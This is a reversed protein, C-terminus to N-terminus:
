EIAPNGIPGIHYRHCHTCGNDTQGERHCSACNLKTIPAFNSVAVSSDHGAFTQQNSVPKSMDHCYSCDQLHPQLTHPGHSFQTFDRIAPDRYQAKWNVTLAEDPLQDVTHCSRCQGIGTSSLMREFLATAAASRDAAAAALDSWEKLCKDEHGSPRYAVRFSKDDRYWGTFKAPPLDSEPPKVVASSEVPVAAPGSSSSTLDSDIENQTAMPATPNDTALPNVALLEADDTADPKSPKLLISRERNPSATSRRSTSPKNNLTNAHLHDVSEPEVPSVDHDGGTAADDQKTISRNQEESAMLVQLPNRILLSDDYKVLRFPNSETTISVDTAPQHDAMEIQLNPLWRRAVNHFVAHDLQGALQHLQELSIKTGVATAIRRQLGQQGDISLEHLLRKIAWVLETADAVQRSDDPDIDSFEFREGLRDLLTAAGSDGYLLLRMIPPIPGDFDGTAALPWSGIDHGHQEIADTDIMPLAFIALGSQCSDQIGQQHCSACAQDFSALQKVNRYNDDVHCRNCNFEAQKGPFHKLAHTSHDFAIRSRRQQPWNSFEPHDTEFSHYVASHCSQCQQDTMAKLDAKGHHERHCASCAIEHNHNVPSLSVMGSSVFSATRFKTSRQQLEATSINHPNLSLRSNISDQHCKMCLDSQSVNITTGGTLTDGIWSVISRDAAAHCAACRDAGQGALIQAHSSCLAGPALFEKEIPSTLVIILAGVSFATIALTFITRRSRISRVNRTEVDETGEGRDTLGVPVQQWTDHPRPYENKTKKRLDQIM